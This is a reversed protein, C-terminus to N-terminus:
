MDAMFIIIFFMKCWKYSIVVSRMIDKVSYYGILNEKGDICQSLVVGLASLSADCDIM